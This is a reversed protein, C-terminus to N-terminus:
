KSVLRWDKINWTNNDWPTLVVDALAPNIGQADAFFVTPIMVVDKMLLDNMQIFLEERKGPDLETSAQQFLKEYEDNCWREINLGSWNNAKQPIQACTWFRMYGKPDPSSSRIWLYILDANFCFASNPNSACAGFLISPDENKLEVEVGLSELAQKVTKQAQILAPGNEAQFVVKMKVGNKDRIKDGDTDKWGAEDLLAEAKKLDFEYFTNPSNYQPPAVLDNSTPRGVPGYLEALTARDVAYAFAQRVKPDNFFPHEYELNSREGDATERNPDTHNLLIRYVNSGFNTILENQEKMRSLLEPSLQGLGYAYDVEGSQVQRAAEDQTGGGRWEISSFFPKDAERFHENIEFVIKNTEVLQSGLLLVEQTKIGQDWVKYPGTGVPHTNAPAERANAGKYAEFIHRPIILGRNGVFPLYWAPNTDKFNVKVTHDDIAEVSAVDAFASTTAAKVDPNTAYEYTFLVDAATFPEGDSWKVDEKLKWTVSKGDAAVGGNEITPIEEALVPILMGNQDFSALPEYVIRTPELDKVSATLHPNLTVPAQPNLIKLEGGAGRGTTPAQTPTAAAELPLQAIQPQLQPVCATVLWALLFALTALRQPSSRPGGPRCHQRAHINAGHFAHANFPSITVSKDTM